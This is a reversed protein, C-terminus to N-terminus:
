RSARSLPPELGCSRLLEGDAFIGGPPGDARITGGDMVLVRSCVDAVLDLDHTAVLRTHAFTGLLAILRRRARPDLGASPEDLVLVDPAMAIVGAMAVLRKEGGSLRYPARSELHSAGVKALAERARALADGRSMGLNLPGFAVDERVTPMFLQDDSDQFVFGVRRHVQARTAATVAVDDVRIEGSDPALLGMLALLLTSKGAGNAGVIGVAEGSAIAFSAGCLARTGDPYAYAVDRAEVIPM